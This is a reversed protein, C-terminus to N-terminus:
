PNLSEKRAHSVLTAKTLSRSGLVKGVKNITKMLFDSYQGCRIVRFFFLAGTHPRLV